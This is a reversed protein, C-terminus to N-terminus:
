RRPTLQGRIEGNPYRATHINVYWLGNALATAQEPTITQEGTIPQANLNGSFPVVVGANGGRPAPGHIHAATAPGTLGSYTVKWRLTNTNTNLMLEAVGNGPTVAPPVQQGGSLSAEYIATNGMPRMQGCGALLTLAVGAALASRLLTKRSTM